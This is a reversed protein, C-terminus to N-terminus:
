FPIWLGGVFIIGCKRRPISKGDYELHIRILIVRALEIWLSVTLLYQKRSPVETMIVSILRGPAECYISTTLTRELGWGFTLCRLSEM